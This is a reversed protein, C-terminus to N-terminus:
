RVPPWKRLDQRRQFWFTTFENMWDIVFGKICGEQVSPSGTTNLKDKSRINKLFITLNKAKEACKWVSVTYNGGSTIIIINNKM